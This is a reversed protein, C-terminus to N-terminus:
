LLDTLVIFSNKIFVFSFKSKSSTLKSGNLYILVSPDDELNM